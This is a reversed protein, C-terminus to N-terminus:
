RVSDGARSGELFRKAHIAEEGSKGEDTGGAEGGGLIM